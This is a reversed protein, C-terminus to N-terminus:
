EDIHKLMEEYNEKSTVVTYETVKHVTMSALAEALQQNTKIAKKLPNKALSETTKTTIYENYNNKKLYDLVDSDSTYSINEKTFWGAKVDDAEIEHINNTKMAELLTNAKDSINKDLESAQAKLAAIQNDIDEKQRKLQYIEKILEQM